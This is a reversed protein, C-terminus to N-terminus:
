TKSEDEANMLPDNDILEALSPHNVKLMYYKSRAITMLKKIQLETKPDAEEHGENNYKAEKM